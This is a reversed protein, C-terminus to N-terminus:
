RQFKLENGTGNCLHCKDRQTGLRRDGFLAYQKYGSGGCERCDFVQAGSKRIIKNMEDVEKQVEERNM